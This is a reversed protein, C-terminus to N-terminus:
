KKAPLKLKQGPSLKSFNVGPNVSVLDTVSVKNANAIKTGTDGAKVVYEGPGAVAKEAGKKGGAGKAEVPAPKKMSEEMKTVSARLEGIIPGIQDFGAQTQQRLEQYQKGAKDTAATLNAIQGEIAEVKELKPQLAEVAKNAKSAQVLGIGGLVLGIVGAIVGFVPLMSNNERSITDM